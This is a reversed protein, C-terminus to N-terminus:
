EKQVLILPSDCLKQFIVQQKKWRICSLADVLGQVNDLLCRVALEPAEQTAASDM